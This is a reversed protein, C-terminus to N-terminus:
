TVDRGNSSKGGYRALPDHGTYAAWTFLLGILATMTLTRVLSEDELTGQRFYKMAVVFQGVVSTILFLPGLIWALIRFVPRLRGPEAGTPGDPPNQLLQESVNKVRSRDSM